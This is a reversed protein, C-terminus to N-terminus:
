FAAKLRMGFERPAGVFQNTATRGTVYVKKALNTGYVQLEFNSIEVTVNASLLGRSDILDRVPNYGIYAFQKGVFSYNVRPTVTYDGAEIKYAAGVNWSWKPSYLNPGSTTTLLFPTYNVCPNPVGPATCQPRNTVGPNALAFARTDVLNSGASLSSDVYAFGGDFSFANLNAQVQGEFGKVTAKGVNFVANLGTSPAIADLQFDKYDYYFGGLQVKIKRDLFAGKWGLEYDMVTEPKFNTTPTQIGGAKYGRAAFAYVLHDNNPKWNLSVKGTMRSDRESGGPNGVQVGNGLKVSGVSDVSYWSKRGGVDISLQEGLPVTVQAFVGKTRKDPTVIINTTNNGNSFNNNIVHILNQQYYGGVVWKLPQSDPSLINFEQTMERENVSQFQATRPLTTTATADTDYFNFIRKRTFGSLSRFTVGGGTEYNLRLTTQFNRESNRTEDSFSLLYPDTNAFAAYRTLPGPQFAYGETEKTNLETKLLASFNDSPEWLLGVRGALEDLSGPRAVRGTNNKFFSKRHTYYVAGRLALTQGIPINLAAEGGMRGYNGLTMQAYGELAGIKPSQSNIFVAGGTSNSGVFTGQPGRFVEVSAIDYFSTTTVVPPQFMGDIYTAVGNSANANGSALGIGRINVNQTLGSNTVTLSPAVLQLDEVKTVARDTLSDGSLATIAAPVSLVNESRKQATVIIENSDVTEADDAASQALVPSSLMSVALVAVSVAECYSKKM